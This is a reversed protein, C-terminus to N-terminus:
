AARLNMNFSFDWINNMQLFPNVRLKSQIATISYATNPWTYLFSCIQNMIRTPLFDLCETSLGPSDGKNIMCVESFSSLASNHKWIVLKQPFCIVRTLGNTKRCLLWCSYRYCCIAALHCCSVVPNLHRHSKINTNVTMLRDRLVHVYACLCVSVPVYVYACMYISVCVCKCVSISLYICIFACMCECVSISCQSVWVFVCVCVCLPQTVLLPM